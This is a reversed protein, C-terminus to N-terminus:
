GSQVEVGMMRPQPRNSPTSDINQVVERHQCDSPHTFLTALYESRANYWFGFVRCLSM